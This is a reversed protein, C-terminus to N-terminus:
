EPLPGYKLQELGYEAFYNVTNIKMHICALSTPAAGWSHLLAIEWGLGLGTPQALAIKPASKKFYVPCSEQAICTDGLCIHSMGRLFFHQAYITLGILTGHLQLAYNSNM